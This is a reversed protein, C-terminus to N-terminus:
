SYTRYLHPALSPSAMWRCQDRPSSAKATAQDFQVQPLVGRLLMELNRIRHPDMTRDYGSFEATGAVRVAGELPVVVAYIDDIVPIRLSAQTPASDVTISYGKVPQVPLHVGVRRLLPTSYSGAAIVYRDAVFREQESVVAQM